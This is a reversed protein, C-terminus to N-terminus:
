ALNLIRDQKRLSYTHNTHMLGNGERTKKRIVTKLGLQRLPCLAEKSKNLSMYLKSNSLAM